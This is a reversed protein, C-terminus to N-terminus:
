LLLRKVTENNQLRNFRIDPEEFSVDEFEDQFKLESERSTMKRPKKEWEDKM